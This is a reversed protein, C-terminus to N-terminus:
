NFVALFHHYNVKNIIFSIFLNTLLVHDKHYNKGCDGEDIDGDYGYYNYDDYWPAKIIKIIKRIKTLFLLL